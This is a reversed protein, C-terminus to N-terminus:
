DQVTTEYRVGDPAPVPVAVTTGHDGATRTLSDVAVFATYASMLSYELAVQKIEGPSEDAGGYLSRDSLEAIKSRAWVAALAPHTATSDEQSLNVPIAVKGGGADGHITVTAPATDALRGTLVVPRGVFLDPLRSPYVDTVKLGGWDISLDCLAPHSIREFFLDMVAGADDNLGLYAVAGSGMKALRDLLYRNPSSGVGFSFIRSAGLRAHVAQLIEGENGIYGDTLFAVFRLRQPDHPFDLAAKIGEIMMTGGEGQLSELYALGRRVNEPTAALPMSGLQSAHNSFNILQFTDGPTMSRLAREVAKKAQAIPQGNMSGSCDLVFVMELPKRALSKLEAPPYVMLTFFGGREDHHTLMASKVQGGAVKYRLVFDKNPIADLDSLKVAAEGPSGKKVAVVHNPSKIEEIAVGADIKVAVSIDHGSREGPKLYQVETSQGSKGQSGRAVSGVGDTSGPPNFRPGVVMPFVYEYWGDVYALTHFYKINIDIAKGPEINAVKQTFVNPREQTLLSAVYGQAKAEAYTREAEQREKIIGRIRREGVTMIFENVAANEPLPFVYVAEIKADYPNHYQQTVDVTAIYAAIDASVDTHKLPLLIQKEEGPLVAMLAGCGPRDQEAPQVGKDPKAIIWLEEDPSPLSGPIAQPTDSNSESYRTWGRSSCESCGSLLVTAVVGVLAGISAALVFMKPKM